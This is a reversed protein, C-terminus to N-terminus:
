GELKGPSAVEAAVAEAALVAGGPDTTILLTTGPGLKESYLVEKGQAIRRLLRLGGAFVLVATWARSGGLLGRRWGLRTLAGLM